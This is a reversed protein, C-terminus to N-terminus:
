SNTRSGSRLSPTFPLILCCANKLSMSQFARSFRCTSGGKLGVTTLKNNSYFVQGYHAAYSSFMKLIDYGRKEHMPM